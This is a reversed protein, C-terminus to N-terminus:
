RTGDAAQGAAVRCAASASFRSAWRAACSSRSSTVLAAASPMPSSCWGSSVASRSRRATPIKSDRVIMAGPHPAWQVCNDGGNSYRSTRWTLVPELRSLTTTM